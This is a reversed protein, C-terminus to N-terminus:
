STDKTTLSQVGDLIKQSSNALGSHYISSPAFKGAIVAQVKNIMRQRIQRPFKGSDAKWLLCFHELAETFTTQPSDLIKGTINDVVEHQAVKYEAQRSAQSSPGAIAQTTEEPIDVLKEKGKQRQGLHCRDAESRSM